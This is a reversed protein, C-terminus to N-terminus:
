HADQEVGQISTVTASSGPKPPHALGPFSGCGWTGGRPVQQLKRPGEGAGMGCRDEADEGLMWGERVLGRGRWWWGRQHNKLGVGM